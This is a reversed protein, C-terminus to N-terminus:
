RAAKIFEVWNYDCEDLDHGAAQLRLVNRGSAEVKVNKLTATKWITYEGTNPNPVTALLVGNLYIELTKGEMPTGYRVNIDYVGPTVMVTYQMWEGVFFWGITPTSENSRFYPKRGPVFVMGKIDAGEGKRYGAGENVDPTRDYFAVGPGGEDYNEAEIRGPITAAKGGFPQGAYAAATAATVPTNYMAASPVFEVWNVDVEEKEVGSQQLRLVKRGSPEIKV